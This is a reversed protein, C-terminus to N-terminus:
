SSKTRKFFPTTLAKETSWHLINIRCHTQKYPLNLKDCWQKLPLTINNHTVLHNNKKIGSSIPENLARKISWNYIFIRQYLTKPHFNLKKEWQSITLTEGLYTIFHNTRKETPTTLAKKISWKYINIRSNLTCFSINKEKAWQSILMTQGNFTLLRNQKIPTTLAKQTSWGSTTIRSHLTNPVFNLEREWQSMTMTQGNFTLFHNNRKNNAQEILNAWRTNESCYNGNKDPFRDITTNKEGFQDIHTLYSKYMDDRFNEFKLWQSCITVGLAGYRNYTDSNKDLCRQIMDRWINYFRHKSLGHTTNAKITHEIQLCGCSQTHYKRLNDTIVISKNGCECQCLWRVRHRGQISHLSIVTLRGFKQGTLNLRKPM